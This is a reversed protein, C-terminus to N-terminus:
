IHLSRIAGAILPAVTLLAFAPLTCAVLPFLLKVPLKRAAEEARRRRDRRVETALRELSSVLPAGYRDASALASSLPRVAEGARGPVEDLADALRRGLGVAAVVRQLEDALPGSARRGVAAVALHVTLGAGVGLVLLDVVDPLDAAMAALRRKEARAARMSPLLYGVLAAGLAAPPFVPLLLSGSLLASGLRRATLGDPVAGRRVRRLVWTGLRETLPETSAVGGAPGGAIPPGSPEGTLARVRTPAPRLRYAGVVVLATWASAVLAPTM